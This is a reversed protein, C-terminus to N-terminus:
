KEAPVTATEVMESVAQPPPLSGDYWGILKAWPTALPSGSLSRTIRHVRMVAAAPASSM